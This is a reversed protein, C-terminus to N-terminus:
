LIGAVETGHSQWTRGLHSGRLTGGKERLIALLLARLVALKGEPECTVTSELVNPDGEYPVERPPQDPGRKRVTVQGRAPWKTKRKEKVTCLNPAEDDGMEVAVLCPLLARGGHEGQKDSDEAVHDPPKM